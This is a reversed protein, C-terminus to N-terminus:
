LYILPYKQIVELIKLYIESSNQVHIQIINPLIEM